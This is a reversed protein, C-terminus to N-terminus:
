ARGGAAAAVVARFQEGIADWTYTAAITARGAASLRAALGADRRLELVASAFAEPTDAVLVDRRDGVELGEVGKSTAIVPTGLAMSELVKLRTGAGSRLPVVTAVAGAIASKVDALHGTVRVGEGGPPEVQGTDGTIWFEVPDGSARVLPMVHSIYWTVAELNPAYTIAGPYIVYPMTAPRRPVSLDAREAGNPVVRIRSAPVGARELLAGELPSAVTVVAMAAALRRLYRAQKWWTLRRRWRELRTTAGAVQSWIQGPEAEEFVAPVALGTLYRAASLELGVVVDAEVARARVLRRVDPDDTEQLSRPTSAWWTGRRGPLPVFPSRPIVTVRRCFSRLDALAEASPAAPAAFAILDVAHEAALARLLQCARLTSGNVVPVPSWTSVALIRM